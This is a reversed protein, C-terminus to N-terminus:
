ISSREWQVTRSNIKPEYSIYSPILNWSGLAGWDKAAYDHWAIVLGGKPFALAHEIPFRKVCGDCTVPIDQPM